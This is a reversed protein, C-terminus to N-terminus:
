SVVWALEEKKQAPDDQRVGTGKKKECSRIRSMSFRKGFFVGKAARKGMRSGRKGKKGCCLDPTARARDVRLAWGNEMTWQRSGGMARTGEGGGALVQPLYPNKDVTTTSSMTRKTLVAPLGTRKGRKRMRSRGRGTFHRRVGALSDRERCTARTRVRFAAAASHVTEKGVDRAGRKLVSLM